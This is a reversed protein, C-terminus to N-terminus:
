KNKSKPLRTSSNSPTGRAGRGSEKAADGIGQKITPSRGRESGRSTIKPNDATGRFVRTTGRTAKEGTEKGANVLFNKIASSKENATLSKIVEDRNAKTVKVTVDKGKGDDIPIPNLEVDFEIFEGWFEPAFRVKIIGREDNEKNEFKISWQQM